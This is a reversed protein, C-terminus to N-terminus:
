LRDVSLPAVKPAKVAMIFVEFCVAIESHNM